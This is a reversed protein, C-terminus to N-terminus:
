EDFQYTAEAYYRIQRNALRQQIWHKLTQNKEALPTIQDRLADMPYNLRIARGHVIHRSIGPPLFARHTAATIIDAPQYEPFLVLATADPHLEWIEDPESIATRQLVANQQYIKVVDRLAANREHATNVPTYLAFVREDRLLVHAIAHANQGELIDLAPMQRLSAIFKTSDWNCLAHKWTDLEIHGSDYSVVQVLIHPYQLHAFAHYRNAGDLVVYQEDGIPAVVPPNIMFDEHSLREVLPEARQSDHEEHPHLSLTPVIRLDPSPASIRIASM